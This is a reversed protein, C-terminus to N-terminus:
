QSQFGKKETPNPKSRSLNFSGLRWEGNEKIIMEKTEKVNGDKFTVKLNINSSARNTNESLVEITAITRQSTVSDWMKHLAEETAFAKKLSESLLADAKSFNGDNAHLVAEKYVDGPKAGSCGTVCFAALILASLAYSRLTM